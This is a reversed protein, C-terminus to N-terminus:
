CGTVEGGSAVAWANPLSGSVLMMGLVIGVDDEGEVRGREAAEVM